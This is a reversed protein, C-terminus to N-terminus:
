IVDYLITIVKEHRKQPFIYNALIYVCPLRISPVVVGSFDLLLKIQQQLLFLLFSLTVCSYPCISSPIFPSSKM